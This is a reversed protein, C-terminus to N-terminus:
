EFTKIDLWVSLPRRVGEQNIGGGKIVATCETVSNSVKKQSLRRRFSRADERSLYGVLKEEIVVAIAKDDFKNDPEPVLFASCKHRIFKDSLPGAISILATQYNSEGVVPFDFFNEPPWVFAAKLGRWKAGHTKNNLSNAVVAWGVAAIILIIVFWSM